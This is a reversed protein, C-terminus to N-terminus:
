LYLATLTRPIFRTVLDSSVSKNQLDRLPLRVLTEALPGRAVATDVSTSLGM